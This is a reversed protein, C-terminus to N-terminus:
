AAAADPADLRLVLRFKQWIELDGVPIKRRAETIADVDDAAEFSVPAGVVLGSRGVAYAVYHLAM